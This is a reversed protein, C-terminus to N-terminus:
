NIRWFLGRRHNREGVVGEVGRHIDQKKILHPNACYSCPPHNSQEDELLLNPALVPGETSWVVVRARRVKQQMANSQIYLSWYDINYFNSRGSSVATFRWKRGYVRDEIDYFMKIAM